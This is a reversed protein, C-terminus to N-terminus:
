RLSEILRGPNVMKGVYTAWDAKVPMTEGTALAARWFVEPTIEPKVQCALAYLGAIYPLISSWSGMPYFGYASRGFPHAVTKPGESILLFEPLGVSKLRKEYFKEFGDRGAVQIIWEKWSLVRHAAPDDPSDSASRDLGWFWFGPEDDVAINGSVVFIGAKEAKRAAKNMAKFGLNEPGCGASISIVRIRRERPLGANAELLKDVARAYYAANPEGSGEGSGVEYNHSGVYYIEAEPAVGCTRGALISTVLTGHFDAPMKGANVEGYYRLRDAYEEHDLLLPTDIIAVSVGKGTVGRDHIARIGFGPNRNLDLIEAPDFGAPLAAPWKTETDFYSKLLDQAYGALDLRSLDAQRLDYFPGWKKVRDFSQPRGGTRNMWSWDAPAPVRVFNPKGAPSDTSLPPSSATKKSCASSLIILAAIATITFLAAIKPSRKM